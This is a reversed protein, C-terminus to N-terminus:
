SQSVLQQIISKPNLVCLTVLKTTERPTSLASYCSLGKPYVSSLGVHPTGGGFPFFYPEMIIMRPMRSGPM